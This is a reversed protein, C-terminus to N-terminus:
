SERRRWRHRLKRGGKKGVLEGSRQHNKSGPRGVGAFLLWRVAKQGSSM